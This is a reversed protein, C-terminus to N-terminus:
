RQQGEAMGGDWGGGPQRWCGAEFGVSTPEQLM